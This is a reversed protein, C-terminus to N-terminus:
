KKPPLVNHSERLKEHIDVPGTTYCSGGVVLPPTPLHPFLGESLPGRPVEPLLEASGEGLDRLKLRGEPQHGREGCASGWGPTRREFIYL